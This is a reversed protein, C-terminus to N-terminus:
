DINHTAPEEDPTLFLTQEATRRRLLGPVEVLEGDITEKDWLLFHQAAAAKDGMNLVKGLGGVLPGTGVNETLSILAAYENDSLATQIYHLVYNGFEQLDEALWTCAQAETITQSDATIGQTRGYGQTWVGGEDQYPEARFAEFSKVLTIGADNISRVM